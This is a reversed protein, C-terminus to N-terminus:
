RLSDLVVRRMLEADATQGTFLKFQALAQNVFM